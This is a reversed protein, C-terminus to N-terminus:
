RVIELRLTRDARREITVVAPSLLVPVDGCSAEFVWRGPLRASLHWRGQATPRAEVVSLGLAGIPGVAQLRCQPGLDVFAEVDIAGELRVDGLDIIAPAREVDGLPIRIAGAAHSVTLAARGADPLVIEFRGDLGTYAPATVIAVPDGARRVDDLDPLVSVAAAEVPIGDALVRGRAVARPEIRVTLRAPAMVDIRSRGHSPHLARIVYRGRALGRFEFQGSADSTTEAIMEVPGEEDSEGSADDAKIDRLEGGELRRMLLLTAGELRAGRFTVDGAVVEDRELMVGTAVAPPGIVNKLPIRRIAHMPATLELRGDTSGGSLWFTNMGLARVHAGASPAAEFVRSAASRLAPKLVRTVASVPVGSGASVRVLRGWGAREWTARGSRPASVAYRVEGGSEAVMVGADHLPIGICVAGERGSACAVQRADSAGVWAVGADVGPARITRVWNMGFEVPWGPREVSSSLLYGQAGRSRLAIRCRQTPKDMTVVPRVLPTWAGVGELEGTLSRCFVAYELTEEALPEPIRLPYASPGQMTSMLLVLLTATM